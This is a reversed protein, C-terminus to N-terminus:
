SITNKSFLKLVLVGSIILLIGLIAPLDLKQGYILTGSIAVLVIGAGAWIAYTIGLPIVKLTLSLLYFSLCYGLVVILSPGIKTFEQSSKLATTASVEALIALFLYIWYKM